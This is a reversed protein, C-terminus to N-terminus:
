PSRDLLKRARFLLSQTPSAERRIGVFTDQTFRGVQVAPGSYDPHVLILDAPEPGTYSEKYPGGYHPSWEEWPLDKRFQAMVAGPEKHVIYSRLEVVHERGTSADRFLRLESRDPALGGLVSYRPAANPGFLSLTLDTGVVCVGVALFLWVLTPRRRM